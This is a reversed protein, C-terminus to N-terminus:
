SAYRQTYVTINTAFSRFVTVRKVWKTANNIIRNVGLNVSNGQLQALLTPIEEQEFRNVCGDASEIVIYDGSQNLDQLNLSKFNEFVAQTNALVTVPMTKIYVGGTKVISDAYVVVDDAPSSGGMDLRVQCTRDPMLATALPVKYLMQQISTNVRTAVTDVVDVGQLGALGLDCIVGGGQDTVTLRNINSIESLLLFQPVYSINLTNVTGGLANGLFM